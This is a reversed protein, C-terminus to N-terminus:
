KANNKNKKIRVKKERAYKERTLFHLLSILNGKQGNKTHQENVGTKLNGVLHSTIFMASHFAVLFGSGKFAPLFTPNQLMHSPLLCYRQNIKPNGRFKFTLPTYCLVYVGKLNTNRPSLQHLYIDYPSLDNVFVRLIRWM